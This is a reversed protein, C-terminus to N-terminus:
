AGDAPLVDDPLDVGPSPEFTRSRSRQVLQRLLVLEKPEQVVLRRASRAVAYPNMSRPVRISDTGLSHFLRREALSSPRLVRGNIRM